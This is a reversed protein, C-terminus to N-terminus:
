PSAFRPGNTGSARNAVLKGIEFHLRDGLRAGSVGSRMKQLQVVVWDERFENLLKTTPGLM